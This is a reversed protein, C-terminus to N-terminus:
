SSAIFSRRLPRTAQPLRVTFVTGQDAQSSVEVTGGHAEVLQKVIALGIGSGRARSTRGRYFRDFVAALEDPAIGCGTDRVRIVAWEDVVELEVGVVGGTPTFKAGNSLLNAIVQRIRTADIDAVIGDDLDLELRLGADRLPGDWERAAEQVLERLRVSRRELTFGAADASALAELDAVIRSLRRVEDHLSALAAPTPDSVRDQFSEIHSQLITLPTRMEHAVERAFVRRLRDEEEITDAMQNFAQGMAGFEDLRGLTVRRDRDGDTRARAADTLEQVPATARRALVVGVGLAVIGALLGGSLLLRNVSARFAADGPRLGGAPVRVELLGVDEGLIEVPLRRTPGLPGTGLMERHMAAMKSSRGTSSSWVTAGGSDKVSFSLGSMLATAELGALDDAEWGGSRIFSDRVAVILEQESRERRDEVYSSFRRDFAINVLTATLLAGALGMGVFAVALRVTFSRTM